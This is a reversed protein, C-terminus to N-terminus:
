AGQPVRARVRALYARPPLFALMMLVSSSTGLVFLLLGGLPDTLMETHLWWFVSGVLNTLVALGTAVAYLRFRDAVVPDALGIHLRRRLLLHYRGCEVFAWGFSVTIWFPLGAWFIAGQSWGGDVSQAVFLGAAGLGVAALLGSAWAVGRRFLLWVFGTNTTVGIAAFLGATAGLAARTAPALGPAERAVASLPYGLGALLFVGCGVLLEPLHRTRASLGILRLGIVFAVLTYAGGGIRALIEM